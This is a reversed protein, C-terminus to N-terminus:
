SACMHVIWSSGIGLPVDFLGSQAASYVDHWTRYNLQERIKITEVQLTYAVIRM